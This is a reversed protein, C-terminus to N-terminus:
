SRDQLQSTRHYGRRASGFPWDEPRTCLGAKVPNQEIYKTINQEDVRNQIWRDFYDRAWFPGARGLLHNAERASNAKIASIVKPLESHPRLVIHLHNPMLVWPGLECRGREESESLIRIIAAAIEPEVLWKPGSSNANLLRDAKVFKAGETTWLDAIATTPL